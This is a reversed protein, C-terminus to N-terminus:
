WVFYYNDHPALKKNIKDSKEKKKKEGKFIYM